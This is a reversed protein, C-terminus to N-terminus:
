QAKGSLREYECEKGFFRDVIPIFNGSKPM